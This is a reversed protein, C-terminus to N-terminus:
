SMDPVVNFPVVLVGVTTFIVSNQADRITAGSPRASASNSGVSVAMDPLRGRMHLTSGSVVVVNAPTDIWTGDLLDLAPQSSLLPLYAAASGAGLGGRMTTPTGNSGSSASVNSGNSADTGTIYSAFTWVPYADNAKCGVPAICASVFDANGGGGLRATWLFFDGSTSLVGHMRATFAGTQYSFQAVSIPTWSDTSTPDATVSGGTFQAKAFGITAYFDQASGFSLLLSVQIGSALVPSRLVLWSHASGPSARVIKTGDFTSGWRDVGDLAATTGDSSGVCTWLGQTAGGIQGMLFAKIQWLRRRAGSVIDPAAYSDFSPAFQWNREYAM